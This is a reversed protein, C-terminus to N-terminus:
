VENSEEEDIDLKSLPLKELAVRCIYYVECTGCSAAKKCIEKLESLKYDKM